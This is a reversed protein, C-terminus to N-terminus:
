KYSVSNPSSLSIYIRDQFNEEVQARSELYELLVQNLDPCNKEWDEGTTEEKTLKDRHSGCGPCKEDRGSLM